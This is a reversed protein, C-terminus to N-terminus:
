NRGIEVSIQVVRGHFNVKNDQTSNVSKVLVMRLCYNGKMVSMKKACKTIHDMQDQILVVTEVLEM